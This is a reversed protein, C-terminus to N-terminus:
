LKYFVSTTQINIQLAQCSYKIESYGGNQFRNVDIFQFRCVIGYIRVLTELVKYSKCM